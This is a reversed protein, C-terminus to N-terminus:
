GGVMSLLEDVYRRPSHETLVLDYGLKRITLGVHM